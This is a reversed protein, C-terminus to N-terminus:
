QGVPRSGGVVLERVAEYAEREAQWAVGDIQGQAFRRDVQATRWWLGITALLRIATTYGIPHSSQYKHYFRLRSRWLRVFASWRVQKSSQGEHHIVRATPVAYIQWGALKMRVAWDLEECYMFYGDDLGGLQQIVAGRVMLAAGLVFDVPFPQPGRWASQAYRGNLRSNHLRQIGPLGTLPFFDIAIQALSPFRFAGHQVRGDGYHLQAGCAGAKPTTTLFHAMQWLADGQVETDANLLLVYDPPSSPAAAPVQPSNRIAFQAHDVAEDGSGSSTSPSGISFGFTQLGLNNGGTYGLNIPSAILHAAPFDAAVMAASEDHSASDIVLVDVALLDASQAASAYVSQLCRRLLERTNYNVIIIALRPRPQSM